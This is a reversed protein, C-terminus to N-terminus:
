RTIERLEPMTDVNEVAFSVRGVVQGYPTLVNVRWKGERLDSKISYGRYGGERGGSIAFPVTEETVWEESIEDYREWEHIITTTLGTPAFIATFVYASEGPARHFVTNYRLYSKYWPVPEEQLHYEGEVRALTHYVGAEKLALPLPPIANTFYLINFVLLIAALARLVTKREAREVQPVLRHLALLFLVITAISAAGALAFMWPGIRHLLIPLLFNFFSLLAVFYMGIQFSFRVYRTRFRENGILLVAIVLVFIWSVAISASRSYVSLFGSFLGGFAFQVVVPVFPAIKLVLRGKLKATEIMNIVAIGAAALILYSSLVLYSQLSDIRDLFVFNDLLFGALLAFPAIYREYWHILEETTKPLYRRIM